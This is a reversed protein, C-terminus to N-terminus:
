FHPGFRYSLTVKAAEINQKINIPASQSLGPVVFVNPDTLTVTKTGFGYHDFEIGATWNGAFAWEAGVGVTYGTPTSTGTPNCAIPTAASICINGPNGWGVHNQVGYTNHSWAAGGKGYILVRDFAYGLRATASAFWDTEATIPMPGTFLLAGGFKGGFFPDNVQGDMRTWSFDGGLGIVWHAAFQYDCGVQAGGLFSPGEDVDIFGGAPAILTNAPANPDSFTARGWGAGIHGGVYCGTWSFAPAPVPAMPAAKVPMRLDAAMAPAAIALATSALLLRKM